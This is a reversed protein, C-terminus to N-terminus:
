KVTVNVEFTKAPPEKKEWPRKYGFKLATEGAAVAQFKFTMKGGAGIRGPADPKFAPEGEQKLAGSKMKEVFWNYGTTPNAALTVELTDGVKLAVKRGADKETLCVAEGAFAAAGAAVALASVVALWRHTKM